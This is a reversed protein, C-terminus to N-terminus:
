FGVETQAALSIMIFLKNIKKDRCGPWQEMSVSRYGPLHHHLLLTNVSQEKLNKREKYTDCNETVPSSM